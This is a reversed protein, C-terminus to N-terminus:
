NDAFRYFKDTWEIISFQTQKDPEIEILARIGRKFNSENVIGESVITYYPSMEVSIFANCQSYADTGIIEVLENSTRFDKEKRYNMIDTVMSETIGPLLAIMKSSAANINITEKKSTKNEDAEEEPFVIILDKVARFVEDTVGRVWRLENVSLFDGNRCKYPEPLSQYFDDEAGHLRHLSDKDRWDLISDVIVAIENEDLDSGGFLIELLKRNEVQNINIKGSTNEIEIRVGGNAYSFEPIHANIRWVPAEATEDDTDKPSSPKNQEEILGAIAQNFGAYAMYYAEGDEIFNKTVAIETRTTRCFEGVIVSLLALVWLVLMLAIGKNANTDPDSNFAPSLVHRSKTM